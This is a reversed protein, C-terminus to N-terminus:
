EFVKSTKDIIRQSDEAMAAGKSIGGSITAFARELEAYALYPDDFTDKPENEILSFGIGLALAVAAATSIFGVARKRLPNIRARIDVTNSSSYEDETLAVVKRMDEGVREMFGEPVQMTEDSAAALLEELGMKEIEKLSKM